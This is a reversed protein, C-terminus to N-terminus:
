VRCCCTDDYSMETMHITVNLLVPCGHVSDRCCEYENLRLIKLNMYTFDVISDLHPRFWLGSTSLICM